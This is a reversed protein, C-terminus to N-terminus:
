SNKIRDCVQDAGLQHWPEGNHRLDRALGFGDPDNSTGSFGFFVYVPISRSSAWLKIANVDRVYHMHANIAINNIIHSNHLHTMMFTNGIIRNDFDITWSIRNPPPMFIVIARPDKIVDGQSLLWQTNLELGHGPTGLNILELGLRESVLTPWISEVPLGTGFTFSCGMTILSPGTVTDFERDSRFGWSNIHYTIENDVWGWQELLARQQPDQLNKIYTEELDSGQWYATVPAPDGSLDWILNTGHMANTFLSHQLLHEYSYGLQETQSALWEDWDYSPPIYM